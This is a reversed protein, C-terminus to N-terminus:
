TVPVSDPTVPEATDPTRTPRDGRLFSGVLRAAGTAAFAALAFVFVGSPSGAVLALFTTM